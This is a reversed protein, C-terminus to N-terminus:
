SILLKETRIFDYMFDGILPARGYPLVGAIFHLELKFKM